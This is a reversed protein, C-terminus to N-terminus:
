YQLDTRVAYSVYHVGTLTPLIYRFHNVQHVYSNDEKLL